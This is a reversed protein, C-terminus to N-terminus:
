YGHDSHGCDCWDAYTSQYITGGCESCTGGTCESKYQKM